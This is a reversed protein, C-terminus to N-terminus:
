TVRRGLLRRVQDIVTAPTREVQRRSFNLVTWGDIELENRRYRDHEFADLSRLHVGYGDMEFALQRDPYSWDLEFTSGSSVTVLHHSTPRPLLHRMLLKGLTAEAPSDAEDRGLMRSSLASSLVGVGRHGNSVSLENDIQKLTVVGTSLWTEAFRAVVPASIVSACDLLTRAPTSVAVNRVFKHALPAASRHAILGARNVQRSTTVESLDCRYNRMGWLGLAMRHSAVAGRGAALTAALARQDITTPSAPDRYVGHFVARLLEKDLLLEIQRNTLGASRCQERSVVGHQRRLLQDLLAHM